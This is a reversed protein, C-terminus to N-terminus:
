RVLQFQGGDWRAPGRATQYVQGQVLSERSSPVPPAAAVQGGDVRATDGTTKNYRWVSGQTTSGDLNKTTPTVQLAWENQPAKGALALLRERASRQEQPTQANELALQASEIRQAVRNKFDAETQDMALRARDIQSADAYRQGTIAARRNEGAQHMGERLLTTAQRHAEINAEAQNQVRNGDQKLLAGYALVSPNNEAGRGGWKRTNMISGASVEADRLRQEFSRGRMNGYTSASGIVGSFGGTFSGPEVPGSGPGTALAMLRGRADQGQQAALNDAAAMNQASVQGRTAQAAGAAQLPESPGQGTLRTDYAPSYGVREGVLGAQQAQQVSMGVPSREFSQAQPESAKSAFAYSGNPGMAVNAGAPAVTFGGWGRGEIGSGAMPKGSSDAYSVPGSVNGGSFEMTGNASRRATVAGQPNAQAVQANTMGNRNWDTEVPATAPKALSPPPASPDASPPNTYGRGAGATPTAGAGPDKAPAAAALTPVVSAGVAGVGINMLRAAADLGSSIAGGTKVVAPLAGAVGPLAAAANTLNRGVETNRWSDQSGDPKPAPRYGDTPIEAMSSGSRQPAPDASAVSAAPKAPSIAAAADADAQSQAAAESAMADAQQRRANRDQDMRKAWSDMSDVMGGDAFRAPHTPKGSPKHTMDVLDRLSKMGVKRVTDAPLVFEGDSLRAPISDSTGSGPGRVHGGNALALMRRRFPSHNTSM